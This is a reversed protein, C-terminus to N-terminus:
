AVELVKDYELHVLFLWMLPYNWSRSVILMDTSTFGTGIEDVTDWSDWDKM